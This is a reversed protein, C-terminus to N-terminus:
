QVTCLCTYLTCKVEAVSEVEKSTVVSEISAHNQLATAVHPGSSGLIQPPPILSLTLNM